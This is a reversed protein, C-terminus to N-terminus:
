LGRRHTVQHTGAVIRRKGRVDGSGDDSNSREVTNMAAMEVDDSTKDSARALRCEWADDHAKIRMRQFDDIGRRSRSKEGGDVFFEFHERLGADVVENNEGERMPQRIEGRLLEDLTHQATAEPHGLQEDAVVVTQSVAARAINGNKLRKGLFTWKSHAHDRGNREVIALMNGARGDATRDRTAVEIARALSKSARIGDPADYHRSMRAAAIEPEGRDVDLRGCM